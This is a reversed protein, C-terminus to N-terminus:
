DSLLVFRQNAPDELAEKLLMREAEIMSSEGWVVQISERLQRNYFFSSKTTLENFVFGPESHVYISFNRLDASEFFSDWLFDLPLDKSALFLFAIKSPGDFHQQFHFTPHHHHKTTQFSHTRFLSFVCLFVSLSIVLKSGLLFVQRISLLPKKKTM